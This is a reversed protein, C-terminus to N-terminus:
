KRKLLLVAALAVVAVIAISACAYLLWDNGDDDNEQVNDQLGYHDPYVNVTLALLGDVISPAINNWTADLKVVRVDLDGFNEKKYEDATQIHGNDMFVVTGPNATALQAIGAKDSAYSNSTKTSDYGANEINAIEMMSTLLSKNYINGSSSIHMAYGSLDHDEVMKVIYDKLGSMFSIRSDNEDAGIAAGIIKVANIVENYETTALVVVKYDIGLLKILGNDPDKVSTYNPAIILLSNKDIDGRDDMQKITMSMAGMNAASYISGLDTVNLDTFKAKAYNDTAAIKDAHGLEIVTQTYGIGLTIVHDVPADITVNRGISDTFTVSEASSDESLFLGSSILTAVLLTTIVITIRRTTM